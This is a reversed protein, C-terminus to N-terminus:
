HYLIRRSICSVYSVHILDSPQYSGKSSPMVVWELIRAQLIEHVYSGPPSCDVPNCLTPCLQLSKACMCWLKQFLLFYPEPRRDEGGLDKKESQWHNWCVPRLYGLHNVIIKANLDEPGFAFRSGDESSGIVNGICIHVKWIYMSRASIFLVCM